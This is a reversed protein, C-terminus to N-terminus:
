PADLTVAAVEDWNRCVAVEDKNRRLCVEANGARSASPAYLIKRVQPPFAPAKFIEELDDVFHTCGEEAIRALKGDLSIELFVRLGYRPAGFRSLWDRAADHLNFRPGAEAYLTKRSIVAVAIGADACRALFTEIGPTPPAQLMRPGYVLGQLEIWQHNGLRHRIADRVATKNAEVTDDILGLELACVHFLRDYAVMTNDFDIGIKM